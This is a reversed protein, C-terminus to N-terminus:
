DAFFFKNFINLIIENKSFNEVNSFENVVKDGIKIM